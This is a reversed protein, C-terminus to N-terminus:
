KHKFGFAVEPKSSIEELIKNVLYGVYYAYAENKEFTDGHVVGATDNITFDTAHVAEHAVTSFHQADPTWEPISIICGNCGDRARYLPITCGWGQEQVETIVGFEKKMWAVLQEDNAGVVLWFNQRYVPEYWSSLYWGNGMKKM